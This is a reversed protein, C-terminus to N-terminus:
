WMGKLGADKIIVESIADKIGNLRLIEKYKEATESVADPTFDHVM